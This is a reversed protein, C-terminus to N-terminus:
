QEGVALIGSQAAAQRRTNQRRLLVYAERVSIFFRIGV